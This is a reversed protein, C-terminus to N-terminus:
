PRTKLTCTLPTSAIPAQDPADALEISAKLPGNLGGISVRVSYDFAVNSGFSKWNHFPMTSNFIELPTSYRCHSPEEFDIAKMYGLDVIQFAAGTGACMGSTPMYFFVRSRPVNGASVCDYYEKPLFSELTQFRHGSFSLGIARRVRISSKEGAKRLVAYIAEHVYLAAENTKDLHNVLDQNVLIDAGNFTAKYRVLQEIECDSPTVEEFADDTKKLKAGKLRHVQPMNMLFRSTEFEIIQYFGNPGCNGNVCYDGAYISNKFNQLANEVQDALPLSSPITNRGYIVRAEWLDLLEVSKVSGDTNRCVVGMGGGSGNAGAFAHGASITLGLFLVISNKM